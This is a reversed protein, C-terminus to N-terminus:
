YDMWAMADNEEDPKAIRSSSDIMTCYIVLKEQERTAVKQEEPSLRCSLLSHEIEERIQLTQIEWM